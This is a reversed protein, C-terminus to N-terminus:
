NDNEGRIIEKRLVKNCNVSDYIVDKRYKVTLYTTSTNYIIKRKLILCRGKKKIIVVKKSYKKKYSIEQTVVDNNTSTKIEKKGVCGSILFIM